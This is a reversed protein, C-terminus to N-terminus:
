ASQVEVCVFCAPLRASVELHQLDNKRIQRMLNYIQLIYYLVIFKKVMSKGKMQVFMFGMM